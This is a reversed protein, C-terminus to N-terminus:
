TVGKAAPQLHEFNFGRDLSYKVCEAIKLDAHTDIDVALHWPMKFGRIGDLTLTSTTKLDAARAWYIAGSLCVADPYQQSKHEMWEPMLPTLRHENDMSQARFPPTWLYDVVSLLASPTQESWQEQARLIESAPRLPCNALLLCVEDVSHLVDISHQIVDLLTAADSAIDLPRDLVEAGFSKAVSMIEPDETSVIVSDFLGTELAAEVTWALMPKGGFPAVNKRPLRKSGGRAPILAIKM